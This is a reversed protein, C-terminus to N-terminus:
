PGFVGLIPKAKARAREGRAIFCLFYPLVGSFGIFRWLVRNYALFRLLARHIKNTFRPESDDFIPLCAFNIVTAAM